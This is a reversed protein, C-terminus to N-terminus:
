VAEDPVFQTFIFLHTGVTLITLENFIELYNVRQGEFPKFFAIAIVNLLSLLTYLQIQITPQDKLYITSVAFVLRRLFFFSLFWKTSWIDSRYGSYFEGYSKQFQEQHLNRSNCALFIVVLPPLVL